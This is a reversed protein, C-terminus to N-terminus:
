STTRFREAQGTGPEQHVLGAFCGPGARERRPYHEDYNMLVVGDTRAAIAAYDFDKNRAPVSVYLKM